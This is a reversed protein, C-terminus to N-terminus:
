EVFHKRDWFLLVFSLNFPTCTPFSYTLPDQNESLTNRYKFSGLSDVLDRLSSAHETLCYSVHCVHLVWYAKEVQQSNLWSSVDGEGCSGFFFFFLEFNLMSIVAEEVLLKLCQLSLQFCQFISLGEMSM